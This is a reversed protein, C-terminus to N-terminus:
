GAIASDEDTAFADDRVVPANDNNPIVASRAANGITAGTPNSLTVTPGRDSDIETDGTLEVAVVAVIEDAAPSGRFDGSAGRRLSTM